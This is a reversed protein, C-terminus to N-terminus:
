LSFIKWAVLVILLWGGVTKVLEWWDVNALGGSPALFGERELQRITQLSPQIGLSLALLPHKDAHAKVYELQEEKEVEEREDPSLSAMFSAHRKSELQYHLHAYDDPSVDLSHKHLLECLEDLTDIDIRKQKSAKWLRGLAAKTEDIQGFLAVNAAGNPKYLDTESYIEGTSKDYSLGVSGGGDRRRIGAGGHYQDSAAGVWTPVIYLREGM